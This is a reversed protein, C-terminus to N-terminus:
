WDCPLGCAPPHPPRALGRPSSPHWSSPHRLGAPHDSPGGPHLRARLGQGLFPFNGSTQTGLSSDSCTCRGAEQRLRCRTVSKLLKTLIVGNYVGAVQM